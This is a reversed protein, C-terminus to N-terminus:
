IYRGRGIQYHGTLFPNTRKEQGISTEPGHGSYVIVDDGLTLIKGTLSDMLQEYSGGPLDTRGISGAFLCDGVFIKRETEEFL